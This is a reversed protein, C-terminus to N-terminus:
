KLNAQIFTLLVDITIALGIGIVTERPNAVNLVSANTIGIIKANNRNVLAGGSNGPNMAVNLPIALRIDVHKDAFLHGTKINRLIVLLLVGNVRM